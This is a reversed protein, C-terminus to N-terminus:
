VLLSAFGDGPDCRRCPAGLRLDDQRCKGDEQVSVGRIWGQGDLRRMGVRVGGREQQKQVKRVVLGREVIHEFLDLALGFLSLLISYRDFPEHLEVRFFFASLEGAREEPHSVDLESPVSLLTPIGDVTGDLRIASM